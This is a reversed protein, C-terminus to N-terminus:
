PTDGDPSFPLSEPYWQRFRRWRTLWEDTTLKVEGGRQHIRQGSLMEARLCLDDLDQDDRQYLDGLYLVQLEAGFGTLVAYEGNRTIAM